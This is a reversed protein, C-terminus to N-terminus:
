FDTMAVAKSKRKRGSIARVAIVLLFIILATGGLGVILAAGDYGSCSLNCSLALVLFFLGIAVLVSLITLTIKAGDSLEHDKKIGRIQEKLLKRREKWKLPNGKADKLSNYFERIPKYGKAVSDRMSHTIVFGSVPSYFGSVTEPRNGLYAIMCFTSAILLLDFSKQVYYYSSRSIKKGKNKKFPYALFSIIYIIFCFFLFGPTFIIESQQLLNGTFIALVNLLSFCIVLIIRAQIKHSRAWYSIKKM